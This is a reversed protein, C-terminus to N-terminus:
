PRSDEDAAPQDALSRSADRATGPRAWPNSDAPSSRVAMAPAADESDDGDPALPDDAGPELPESDDAQRYDIDARKMSQGGLRTFSIGDLAQRIDDVPVGGVTPPPDEIGLYVVAVRHGRQRVRNLAGDLRPTVLGTVLVITSGMPLHRTEEELLREMHVLTFSGAMALAELVTFLQRDSRGPPVRITSDEEPYSCNSILGFPLREESYATALTAAVSIAQEFIEAITGRYPPPVTTVNLAIVVQPNSSPDYIRSRLKQHRATAKWDVRKLSDGARYDRLGKLRSPDEFLPQGGSSEGYPRYLPIGLEELPVTEPYVWLRLSAPEDRQRTFFGFLDGSRLRTAGFKHFGRAQLPIHYTWTLREYWRMSTRRELFAENEGDTGQLRRNSPELVPPLEQRAHLWPLPLLKKNEIRVLYDIQEGVFAHTQSLSQTLEVNRLSLRGWGRALWGAVFVAAGILSLVVEDSTVGILVLLLSGIIWTERLIRNEQPQIFRSFDRKTKARQVNRAVRERSIDELNQGPSVLV